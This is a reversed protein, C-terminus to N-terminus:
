RGRPGGGGGPGSTGLGGAGGEQDDVNRDPKGGVAAGSPSIQVYSAAEGTGIKAAASAVPAPEATV